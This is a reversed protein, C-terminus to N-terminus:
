PRLRPLHVSLLGAVTLLLPVLVATSVDHDDVLVGLMVDTMINIAAEIPGKLYASLLGLVVGLVLAIATAGLSVMMSIRVGFVLRSAMDRGIGDTGLWPGTASFPPTRAAGVPKDTGPLPLVDALLALLVLAAIWGM